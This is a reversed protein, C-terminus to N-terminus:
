TSRPRARCARRGMRRAACIAALAAIAFVSPAGGGTSTACGNSACSTLSKKPAACASSQGGKPTPDCKDENISGTSSVLTSV